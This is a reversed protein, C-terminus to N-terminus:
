KPDEASLDAGLAWLVSPYSFVGTYSCNQTLHACVYTWREAHTLESM